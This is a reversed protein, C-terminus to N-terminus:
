ICLCLICVALLFWLGSSWTMNWYTGIHDGLHLLNWADFAFLLSSMSVFGNGSANSLLVWSMTVVKVSWTILSLGQICYCTWANCCPLSCAHVLLLHYCNKAGLLHSKLALESLMLTALVRFLWWSMVCRAQGCLHGVPFGFTGFPVCPVHLLGFHVVHCCRFNCTKAWSQAACLCAFGIDVMCACLGLM